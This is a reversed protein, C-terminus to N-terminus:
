PARGNRLSGAVARRPGFRQASNRSLRFRRGNARRAAQDDGLVRRRYVFDFVPEIGSSVNGALLSITGTPAISTLCGNRIGNAAIAERVDADLRAVNPRALFAKADYLPFAGKEAALAASARIPPTRSSRWGAPLRKARRLAAM